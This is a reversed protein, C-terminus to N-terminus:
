MKETHILKQTIEDIRGLGMLLRANRRGKGTRCLRHGAKEKGEHGTIIHVSAACGQANGSDQQPPYVTPRLFVQCSKLRFEKRKLALAEEGGRGFIFPDGGKLRM